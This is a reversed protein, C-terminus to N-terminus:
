TLMGVLLAGSGTDLGISQGTKLQCGRQVNSGSYIDGKWDREIAFQESGVLASDPYVSMVVRGNASTAHDVRCLSTAALVRKGRHSTGGHHLTEFAMVDPPLVSVLKPTATFGPADTFRGGVPLKVGHSCMYTPVQRCMATHAMYLAYREPRLSWEDSFSMVSVLTHAGWNIGPPEGSWGNRRVPEEYTLSFTHRMQDGWHGDRYNHTYTTPMWDPTWKVLEDHLESSEGAGASLAYIHNPNVARCINIWREVEAPDSEGTGASENNGEILAFWHPKDSVLGALRSWYENLDQVSVNEVGGLAHHFQLGYDEYGIRIYEVIRDWQALPDLKRGAWYRHESRWNISTWGRHIHYGADRADAFAQKVDATRGEVYCLLGDGFHLSVPVRRGTDDAYSRGDFKLRGVLPSQHVTAPVPHVPPQDLSPDAGTAGVPKGDSIRYVVLNGDTQLVLEYKGNKDVAIKGILPQM